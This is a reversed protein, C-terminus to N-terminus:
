NQITREQHLLCYDEYVGQMHEPAVLNKEFLRLLAEPEALATDVIIQSKFDGDKAFIIAGKESRMLKYDIMNDGIHKFSVCSNYLM